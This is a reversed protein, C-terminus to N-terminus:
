RMAQRPPARPKRQVARDTRVWREQFAPQSASPDADIPEPMQVICKMAMIPNWTFSVGIPKSMGIVRRLRTTAITTTPM